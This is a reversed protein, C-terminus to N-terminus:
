YRRIFRRMVGVRRRAGRYSTRYWNSPGRAVRSGYSRRGYSRRGYSRRRYRGYAMNFRLTRPHYTREAYGAGGANRVHHRVSDTVGSVAGYKIAGWLSTAAPLVYPAVLSWGRDYAM